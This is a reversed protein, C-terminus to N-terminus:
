SSKGLKLALSDVLQKFTINIDVKKNAFASINYVAIQQIYNNCEGIFLPDYSAPNSQIWSACTSSICNMFLGSQWATLEVQSKPYCACESIQIEFLFGFFLCVLQRFYLQSIFNLNTPNSNAPMDSTDIFMKLHPFRSHAFSVPFKETKFAEYYNSLFTDHLFMEAINLQQPYFITLPTTQDHRSYLKICTRSGSYEVNLTKIFNLMDTLKYTIKGQLFDKIGLEFDESTKTSIKSNQENQEDNSRKLPNIFYHSSEALKPRKTSLSYYM